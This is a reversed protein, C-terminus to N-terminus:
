RKGRVKWGGNFKGVRWEGFWWIYFYGKILLEMGDWGM